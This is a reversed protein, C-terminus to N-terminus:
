ALTRRTLGCRLTASAFAGVAGEPSRTSRRRMARSTSTEIAICSKTNPTIDVRGPTFVFTGLATRFVQKACITRYSGAIRGRCNLCRSREGWRAYVDYVKASGFLALAYSRTEVVIGDPDGYSRVFRAAPPSEAVALYKKYYEVIHTNAFREKLDVLILKKTDRGQMMMNKLLADIEICLHGIRDPHSVQVLRHGDRVFRDYEEVSAWYGPRAFKAYFRLRESLARLQYRRRMATEFGISVALKSKLRPSLINLM